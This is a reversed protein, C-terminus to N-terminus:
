GRANAGKRVDWAHVEVVAATTGATMYHLDARRPVDSGPGVWPQQVKAEVPVPDGMWPAKEVGVARCFDRSAARNRTRERLLCEGDLIDSRTPPLPTDADMKGHRIAWAVVEGWLWVGGAVPNYSTPFQDSGRRGSVWNAAAQRTVGLRAAIDSRTALDIDIGRPSCGREELWRAFSGLADIYTAGEIVGSVFSRGSHNRGSMGDLEDILQDDLGEPVADVLLQVDFVSSM